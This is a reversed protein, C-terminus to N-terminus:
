QASRLFGHKFQALLLEATLETKEVVKGNFRGFGLWRAHVNGLAGGGIGRSCVRLLRIVDRARARARARAGFGVEFWWWGSTLLLVLLARM